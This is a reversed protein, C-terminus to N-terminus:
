TLDIKNLTKNKLFQDMIKEENEIARAVFMLIFSMVGNTEAIFKIIEQCPFPYIYVSEQLPLFGLSLLKRRFRDRSLSHKRPVDFIVIRFQRDWKEKKEVKIENYVLNKLRKKGKPTLEFYYKNKSAVKCLYNRRLLYKLKQAFEIHHDDNDCRFDAFSKRYISSAEFFPSIVDIFSLIIEKSTIKVLEKTIENKRMQYIGYKLVTM